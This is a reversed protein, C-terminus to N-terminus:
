LEIFCRFEQYQKVVTEVHSTHPFMDVPQVEKAEYGMEKLIWLDRGLTSPDCSVYVIRKPGMKGIAELLEVGRGKRKPSVVM